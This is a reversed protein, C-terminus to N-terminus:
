PRSALGLTLELRPGALRVDGFKGAYDRFVLRSAARTLPVIEPDLHAQLHEFARRAAVPDPYPVVILTRRGAGEGYDAAAATVTGALQLIDGEGLTVHAQLALPGRLLRESGPVRGEAPLPDLEAVPVPVPLRSALARAFDVLVVAREARGSLNEVVAYFRHRVLLLEHRGATHREAFGEFPTERGCRSLYLGLAAAPDKMTYLELGVEDGGAAYRRVTVREFGHEYLIEAGGDILEYLEPGTYVRDPEAVKWGPVEGDAPLLPADGRPAAGALAPLTLVAAALRLARM